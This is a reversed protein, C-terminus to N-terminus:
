LLSVAIGILRTKSQFLKTSVVDGNKYRGLVSGPWKTMVPTSRAEETGDAIYIDLSILQILQLM